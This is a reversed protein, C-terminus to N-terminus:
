SWVHRDADKTGSRKSFSEPSDRTFFRLILCSGHSRYVWIEFDPLELDESFGPDLPSIDADTPGPEAVQASMHIPISYKTVMVSDLCGSIVTDQIPLRHWMPLVYTPTSGDRPSKRALWKLM